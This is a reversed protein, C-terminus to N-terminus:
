TGTFKPKRKELFAAQGEKYDNSAFCKTIAAECAALDRKEPDKMLENIALKAARMTLPANAAITRAMETVIQELEAAPVVRNVLGM